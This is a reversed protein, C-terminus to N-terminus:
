KEGQKLGELKKVAISTSDPLSGKFVSGFSGRGLKESFNKTIIQLERFSFSVLSGHVVKLSTIQQRRIYRWVLLITIVTLTSASGVVAGVTAGTM